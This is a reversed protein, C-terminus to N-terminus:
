NSVHFRGRKFKERHEATPMIKKVMRRLSFRRCVEAVCVCGPRCWPSPTCPQDMRCPPLHKRNKATANNM